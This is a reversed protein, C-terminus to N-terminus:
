KTNSTRRPSSRTSYTSVGSAKSRSLREAHAVSTPTSISLRGSTTFLHRVLCPELMSFCAFMQSNPLITQYTLPELLDFGYRSVQLVQGFANFFWRHSNIKKQNKEKLCFIIQVPMIGKESGEIKMSPSVSVKLIHSM